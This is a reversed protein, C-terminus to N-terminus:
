VVSGSARSNSALRGPNAGHRAEHPMAQHLVPAARDHLGIQGPGVAMGLAPCREPHDMAMGGGARGAAQGEPGVLALVARIEDALQPLGTDGRMDGRLARWAAM